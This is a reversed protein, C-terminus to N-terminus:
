DAAITEWGEVREALKDFSAALALLRVRSETFGPKFRSRGCCRPKIETSKLGRHSHPELCLMLGFCKGRAPFLLM